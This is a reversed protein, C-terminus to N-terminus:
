KRLIAEYLSGVVGIASGTLLGRLGGPVSRSVTLVTLRNFMNWFTFNNAYVLYAVLAKSVNFVLPDGCSRGSAAKAAAAASATTTTRRTGYGHSASSGGAAAGQQSVKLSLNFFYAFLSPLFLSTTVWLSLPGWFSANLLVFVDPVKLIYDKSGVAGVAPVTTLYRMPVIDALLGYLEILVTITEIARVNSLAARVAHSRETLGSADWLYSMSQRAKTTQRDIADTIIAPSPPLSSFPMSPRAPTHAIPAPSSKSASLSSDSDDSAGTEQKPKVTRRARTSPAARERRADDGSTAPENKLERERKVPSARSQAQSLRRYYDALRHEGSLSARNAALHDDLATELETKKYDEYDQLNSIEALLVLDSKRLGRLYPLAPSM